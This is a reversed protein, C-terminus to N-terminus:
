TPSSPSPCSLKRETVIEICPDRKLNDPRGMGHVFRLRTYERASEFM